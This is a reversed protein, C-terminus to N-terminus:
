IIEESFSEKGLLANLESELVDAESKLKENEIRIEDLLQNKREEIELQVKEITYKLQENKQKQIENEEKLDVYKQYSEGLVVDIPLTSIDIQNKYADSFSDESIIEDLNSIENTDFM